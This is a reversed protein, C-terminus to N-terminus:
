STSIIFFQLVNKRIIIIRQIQMENNSLGQKAAAGVMVEILGM